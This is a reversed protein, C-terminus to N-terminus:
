DLNLTLMRDKLDGYLQQYQSQELTDALRDRVHTAFAVLASSDSKISSPTAM